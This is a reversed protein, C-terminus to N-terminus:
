NKLDGTHIKTLKHEFDPIDYWEHIPTNECKKCIGRYNANTDYPQTCSCVYSMDVKKNITLCSYCKYFDM